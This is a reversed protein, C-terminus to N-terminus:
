DTNISSSASKDRSHFLLFISVEVTWNLDKKMWSFKCMLQCPFSLKYLAIQYIPIFIFRISREDSSKHFVSIWIKNTVHSVKHLVDQFLFASAYHGNQHNISLWIWYFNNTCSASELLRDGTKKLCVPCTELVIRILWNQFTHFWKITLQRWLYDDVVSWEKGRCHSSEYIWKLLQM